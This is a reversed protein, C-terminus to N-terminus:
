ERDEDTQKRRVLVVVAVLVGGLVVVGAGVLVATSAGGLAEGTPQASHLAWPGSQGLIMGEDSPQTTIDSIAVSSYAEMVYPYWLFIIPADHYLIEQAEHYLETRAEEDIETQSAEVIADFDPNCYFADSSTGGIETPLEACSNRRMNYSPNPQIGWGTFAIESRGENFEVESDESFIVDLEVGVDQFWETLYESINVNDTTSPDVTLRLTLTEDDGDVRFDEGDPWPYGAEDLLRNAEDLDHTVADEEEPEWWITSFVNPVISTAVDGYGDVVGDILSQKDIAHHLATRVQPDFVAENVDGFEEGDATQSGTNFRLGLWRRNPASNTEIGEVGELRRLQAENLGGVIDVNGTELAAVATDPETYYQFVIEDFGPAGHHYDPNAEFRIYNDVSYDVMSFPGGGIIPFDDNAWDTWAGEHEEWIHQPLIEQDTTEFGVDPETLTFEVTHDDIVEVSEIQSDATGGATQPDNAIIHYTYEVDYATIPEGDQWVADEYLEYTWVLGDDSAEYSEALGGIISYDDADVRVLPEYVLQRFTHEIVYLQNFPNWDEVSQNTAVYLVNTEEDDPVYAVEDESLGADEETEDEGGAQAAPIALTAALAAAASVAALRPLLKHRRTM